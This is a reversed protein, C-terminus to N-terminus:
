WRQQGFLDPRNGHFHLQDDHLALRLPFHDGQGPGFNLIPRPSVQWRRGLLSCTLRSCASNVSSPSATM